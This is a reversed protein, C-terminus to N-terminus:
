KGKRREGRRRKKGKVRRSEQRIEKKKRLKISVKIM